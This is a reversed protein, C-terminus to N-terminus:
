CPIMRETPVTIRMWLGCPNHNMLPSEMIEESEYDISSWQSSRADNRIQKLLNEKIVEAQAVLPGKEEIFTNLEVISTFIYVLIRNKAQDKNTKISGSQYMPRDLLVMPFKFEDARTNAEWMQMTTFFIPAEVTSLATVADSIILKILDSNTM